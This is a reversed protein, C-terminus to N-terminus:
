TNQFTLDHNFVEINTTQLVIKGSGRFTLNVGNFEIFSTKLNQAKIDIGCELSNEWAVVYGSPITMAEEDLEILKSTGFCSLFLIGNGKAELTAFNHKSSLVNLTMTKVLKSKIEIGKSSALYAEKTVIWSNELHLPELDGVNKKLIIEQANDRAQAKAIHFDIPSTSIINPKVFRFLKNEIIDIDDSYYKLSQPDFRVTETNNLFIHLKPFNGGHEIYYRM